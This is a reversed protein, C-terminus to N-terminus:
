AQRQIKQLLLADMFPYNVRMRGFGGAHFLGKEARASCLVNTGVGAGIGFVKFIAGVHLSYSIMDMSIDSLELGM